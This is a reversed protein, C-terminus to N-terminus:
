SPRRLYTSTTIEPRPPTDACAAARQTRRHALPGNVAVSRDHARRRPRARTFRARPYHPLHSDRDRHVGGAEQCPREPYAPCTTPQHSANNAALAVRGTV